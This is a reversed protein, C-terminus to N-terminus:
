MMLLYAGGVILLSGIISKITLAQGLIIVSFIVIFVISLRDIAAVGNVPGNALAEFYFIWSAAGCLASAIIVLWGKTDLGNAFLTHLSQSKLSVIVLVISMIISRLTTAAVPNVSRLGINAFITVLAATISSIFAYLIWNM